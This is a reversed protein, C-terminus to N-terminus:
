PLVYFPRFRSASRGGADSPFARVLMRSAGLDVLVAHQFLFDGGLLGTGEFPGPNERMLFANMTRKSGGFETEVPVLKCDEDPMNPYISRCSVASSAADIRDAIVMSMSAGSDLSMRHRQGAIDADLLLGEDTQRFPVEIWGDQGELVGAASAEFVTLTAAQYDILISRGKFFGLGIVPSVPPEAAGMLTVSWPTFEVGTVDRFTLGGITLADIVFRANERVDGAMNSSKQTQGTFRAGRIREITPRTLHLGEASGTDLMLASTTGDLDLEILPAAFSDFRIPLVLDSARASGTADGVAAVILVAIM